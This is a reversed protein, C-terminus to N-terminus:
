GGMLVTTEVRAIKNPPGVAELITDGMRCVSHYAIFVNPSGPGSGPMPPVPHSVNDTVRARPKGPM